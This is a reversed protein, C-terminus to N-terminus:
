FNERKWADSNALRCSSPRGPLQPVETGSSSLVNVYTAINAATALTFLGRRKEGSVSKLHMNPLQTPLPSGLLKDTDAAQLGLPQPPTLSTPVEQASHELTRPGGFFPSM